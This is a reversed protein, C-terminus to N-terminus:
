RLFCRRSSRMAASCPTGAHADPADGCESDCQSQSGRRRRARLNRSEWSWRGLRLASICRAPVRSSGVAREGRPQFQRRRIRVHLRQESSAAVRHRAVLPFADCEIRLVVLQLDKGAVAFARDHLPAVRLGYVGVGADIVILARFDRGRDPVEDHVIGVASLGVDEPAPSELITQALAGRRDGVWGEFGVRAFFPLDGSKLSFCNETVRGHALRRREVAQIALQRAARVRDRVVVELERFHLPRARVCEDRARGHEVDAVDRHHPQREEERIHPRAPM